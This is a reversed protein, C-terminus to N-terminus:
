EERRLPSCQEDARNEDKYLWDLSCAECPKQAELEEFLCVVPTYCVPCFDACLPCDTNVCVEDQEWKCKPDTM